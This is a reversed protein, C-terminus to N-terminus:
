KGAKKTIFYDYADLVYQTIISYNIDDEPFASRVRTVTRQLAEEVAKRDPAIDNILEMCSNDDTFYKMLDGSKGFYPTKTSMLSLNLDYCPALSLIKGSSSDRLFGINLNHRDVNYLLADYFCMEAYRKATDGSTNKDMEKLRSVIYSHEENDNFYNFFPEFDYHANETFDKTRICEQVIGVETKSRFIDYKAVPVNMEDLFCYAFYESVLEGKSGRKFMYWANDIYRWAKEYSGVTGLETYGDRSHGEKHSSGYFAINAIEENYEKLKFYDLDDTDSQIWWNDTISVAHGIRIIDETDAESKMRLAKFLQRSHSRHVDVYRTKLWHDLDMGAFFCAPCLEGEIIETIKTSDALAIVTDKHMIKYM